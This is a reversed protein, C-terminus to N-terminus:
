VLISVIVIIDSNVGVGVVGSVVIINVVVAAALAQIYHILLYMFSMRGVLM